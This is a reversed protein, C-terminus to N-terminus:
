ITPVTVSGRQTRVPGKWYCFIGADCMSDYVRSSPDVVLLSSDKSTHTIVESVTHIYKLRFCRMRYSYQKCHVCLYTSRKMLTLVLFAIFPEDEVYNIPYIKEATLKTIKTLAKMLMQHQDRKKFFFFIYKHFSYTNHVQIYIYIFLSFLILTSKPLKTQLKCGWFFVFPGSFLYIYRDTKSTISHM